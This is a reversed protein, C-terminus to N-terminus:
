SVKDIDFRLPPDAVGNGRRSYQFDVAPWALQVVFSSFAFFDIGKQNCYAARERFPEVLGTRCRVTRFHFV